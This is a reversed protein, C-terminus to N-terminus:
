EEVAMKLLAHEIIEKSYKGEENKAQPYDSLIRGLYYKFVEDMHKEEYRDQDSQGYQVRNAEREITAIASHYDPPRNWKEVARLMLSSRRIMHWVEGYTIWTKTEPTPITSIVQRSKTLQEELGAIREEQEQNMEFQTQNSKELAAIKAKYGRGFMLTGLMSLAGVVVLSALFTIVKITLAGHFWESASLLIGTEQIFDVFEELYDASNDGRAM